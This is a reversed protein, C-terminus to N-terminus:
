IWQSNISDQLYKDVIRELTWIWIQRTYLDFLTSHFTCPWTGTRGLLWPFYTSFVWVQSLRGYRDGYKACCQLVSYDSYCDGNIDTDSELWMICVSTLSNITWHLSCIRADANSWRTVIYKDLVTNHWKFSVPVSQYCLTMSFWALPKSHVMTYYCLDLLDSYQVMCSCLKIDYRSTELTEPWPSPFPM